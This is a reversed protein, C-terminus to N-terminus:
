RCTCGSRRRQGLRRGSVQDGSRSRARDASGEPRIAEAPKAAPPQGGLLIALWDDEVEEDRPSGDHFM